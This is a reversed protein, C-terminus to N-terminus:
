LAIILLLVAIWFISSAAIALREYDKDIKM